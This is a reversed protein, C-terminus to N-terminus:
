LYNTDIRSFIIYLYMIEKGCRLILMLKQSCSILKPLLFFYRAMFFILVLSIIIVMILPVGLM